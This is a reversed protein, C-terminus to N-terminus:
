RKDILQTLMGVIIDISLKRSLGQYDRLRHWMEFSAVADVAERDARELDDLEPLWDDLDKRLARLYGAYNKRLFDYRWIQAHTSLIANKTNEYAAARREVAHQIREEVTGSRDGGIFQAEYSERKQADAAEFLSEMDSFHRFLTRIGIGARDAIQQATPALVGDSVLEIMADVIAQKSRVSRLRRGDLIEAVKRTRRVGAM